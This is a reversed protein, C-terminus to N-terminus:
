QAYIFPSVFLLSASAHANLNWYDARTLLWMYRFAKCDLDGLCHFSSSIFYVYSAQQIQFVCTFEFDNEECLFINHFVWVCKDLHYLVKRYYKWGGKLLCKRGRCTWTVLTSRASALMMIMLRNGYNKSEVFKRTRPKQQCDVSLYWCWALSLLLWYSFFFVGLRPIVIATSFLRVIKQGVVTGLFGAVLSFLSSTTLCWSLMSGIWVPVAQELHWLM